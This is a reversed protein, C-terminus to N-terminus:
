FTIEMSGDKLTKFIPKLSQVAVQPQYLKEYKTIWYSPLVNKLEKTSIQRPIHTCSPVQHSDVHIMLTDTSTLLALDIAHNQIKYAM